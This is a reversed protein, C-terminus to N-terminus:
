LDRDVNVKDKAYHYLKITTSYSTTSLPLHVLPELRGHSVAKLSEDEVRDYLFYCPHSYPTWEAHIKSLGMYITGLSSVFELYHISQTETLINGIKGLAKGSFLSLEKLADSDAPASELLKDVVVDTSPDFYAVVNMSKHREGVARIDGVKAFVKFETM